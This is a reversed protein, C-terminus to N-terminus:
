ASIGTQVRSLCLHPHYLLLTRLELLWWSGPTVDVWLRKRVDSLLMLLTSPLKRTMGLRRVSDPGRGGWHIHPSTLTWCRSSTLISGMRM